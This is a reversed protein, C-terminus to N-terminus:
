GLHGVLQYQKLEVGAHCSHRDATSFPIPCAPEALESSCDKANVFNDQDWAQSVRFNPGYIVVGKDGIDQLSMGKPIQVLGTSSHGRRHDQRANQNKWIQQRRPPVSKVMAVGGRAVVSAGRM